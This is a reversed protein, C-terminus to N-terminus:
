TGTRRRGILWYAILVLVFGGLPAVPRRVDVAPVEPRAALKRASCGIDRVEEVLPEVHNTLRDVDPMTAYSLIGVLAVATALLNPGLPQRLFWAEYTTVIGIVAVLLLFVLGLLRATHRM